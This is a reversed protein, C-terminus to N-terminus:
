FTANFVLAPSTEYMGISFSTKVKSLLKSKTRNDRSYQSPNNHVVQTASLYGIIAGVFVDSAWHTSEAIRTIGVISALTYSLIPVYITKNYQKAIVTAISFATATHGSPFADFNSISIRPNNRLYAFPGSWKGGDASGSKVQASPRERGALWKMSVIWVSSTLFSEFALYSTEQAKTDNFLLSYGSFAALSILGYNAGFETLEPSTQRFTKTREKGNKIYNYTAQDTMFLGATILTGAGAWLFDNGKMRFPSTAQMWLDKGFRSIPNYVPQFEYDRKDSEKTEQISNSKQSNLHGPDSDYKGAVEMTMSSDITFLPYKFSYKSNYNIASFYEESFSKYISFSKISKTQIGKIQYDFHFDFHPKFITNQYNVSEQAALTVFMLSFGLLLINKLYRM